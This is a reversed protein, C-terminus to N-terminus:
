CGPLRLFHFVLALPKQSAGSDCYIVQRAAGPAAKCPDEDVAHRTIWSNSWVPKVCHPSWTPQSCPGCQWRTHWAPATSSHDPPVCCTGTADDGVDPDQIWPRPSSASGKWISKWTETKGIHVLIRQACEKFKPHGRSDATKPRQPQPGQIASDLRLGAPRAAPALQRPGPVPDPSDAEEGICDERRLPGRARGTYSPLPSREHGRGSSDSWHTGERGLARPAKNRRGGLTKM